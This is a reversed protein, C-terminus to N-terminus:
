VGWRVLIREPQQPHVLVTVRQGVGAQASANLPLLVERTVPYPPRGGAEVLLSLRVMPQLNVRAGTDALGIITAEGPVGTRLLELDETQAQMTQQMQAMGARMQAAPDHNASMENAQRQLRRLDGFLGM